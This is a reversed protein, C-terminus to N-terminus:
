QLWSAAASVAARPDPGAAQRGISGGRLKAQDAGVANLVRWAQARKPQKQALELAREDENEDEGRRDRQHQLLPHVGAMM